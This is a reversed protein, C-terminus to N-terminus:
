SEEPASIKYAVAEYPRLYGGPEEEYNGALVSAKAPQEEFKVHNPTFNCFVFVETERLKRKYAFIQDSEELLMEFDGYVIVEEEHRLRIIERYFNYVSRPDDMQRKANIERYNSNVAIWPEGTTFGANVDGNWQM